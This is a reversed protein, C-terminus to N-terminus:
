PRKAATKIIESVVQGLLILQSISQEETETHVNKYGTSLGVSKIGKENFRNADMGGGGTQINQTIGLKEFAQSALSIVEDSEKTYFATYEHTWSFSVKAGAEAAVKKFTEEVKALYAELEGLDHSRAEAKIKVLDCVINTAKGGHIIGFNSTTIPSLRGEPMAAIAKAAVMIANIGEEPAMGAHSSRGHITIEVTKQTPARNVITGVPGGSDLVYGIKSTVKSFDLFKSGLLGVEEAVTIVLEIDGYPQGQAKIRRLGDLISALGTADDAGLITSGDSVIRDENELITPKITGPNSVRDLHASFMIPEVEKKSGILRIIINGTDGGISSAAQDEHIEMPLDLDKMKSMFLDALARENRSHSPVTVMDLFDKVIEPYTM